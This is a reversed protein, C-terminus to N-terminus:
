HQHVVVGVGHGLVCCTSSVAVAGPACLSSVCAHLHAFVFVCASM